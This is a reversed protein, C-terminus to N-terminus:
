LLYRLAVCLFKFRQLVLRQGSAGGIHTIDCRPCYAMQLATLKRSLTTVIICRHQYHGVIERGRVGGDKVGFCNKADAGHNTARGRM